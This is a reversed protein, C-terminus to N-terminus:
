FRMKSSKEFLTYPMNLKGGKKALKRTYGMGRIIPLPVSETGTSSIGMMSKGM